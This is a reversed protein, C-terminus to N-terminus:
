VHFDKASSFHFRLINLHGASLNTSILREDGDSEIIGAYEKDTFKKRINLGSPLCFITM